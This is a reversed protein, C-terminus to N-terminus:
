GAIKYGFGRLTHILPSSNKFPKDVKNRLYGIYVQVTNPLIDSDYEWVDRALDDKSFVMGQNRALYELLAFEKKSLKIPIGAREVELSLPKIVLDKVTIEKHLPESRRRTLAHIRAFLEALEFPKAVYDDAGCNLGDVKDQTTTKATLMLIPTDIGKQRLRQCVEVGNMKPLMRDLVICDYNETEALDFGDQGDLSVDVVYGKTKLAKQLNHAIRSEDEVILVKM